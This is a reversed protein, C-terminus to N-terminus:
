YRYDKSPKSLLTTASCLALSDGVQFLVSLSCRLVKSLLIIAYPGMFVGTPVPVPQGCTERLRAFVTCMDISMATCTRSTVHALPHDSCHRQSANSHCPPPDDHHHHDSRCGLSM